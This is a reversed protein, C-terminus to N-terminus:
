DEERRDSRREEEEDYATQEIYEAHEAATAEGLYSAVKDYLEADRYPLHHITKYELDSQLFRFVRRAEKEDLELTTKM